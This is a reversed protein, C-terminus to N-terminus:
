LEFKKERNEKKREKQRLNYELDHSMFFVDKNDFIPSIGPEVTNNKRAEEWKRLRYELDHEMLFEHKARGEYAIRDKKPIAIHFEINENNSEM